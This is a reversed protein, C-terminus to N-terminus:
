NKALAEFDIAEAYRLLTAQDINRGKVNVIFRGAVVINIEGQQDKDNYKIIARQQKITQLSGGSTGAFLPNSLLMIVSQLVPSDSVIEISLTSGTANFYDRSVTVGGGFVATGLAQSRAEKAQWGWFPEPLLSKMRESKKQRILQTAYDLNSVASEFQDAHYQKIAEQISRLVVDQEEPVPPLSKDEERYLPIAQEPDKQDEPVTLVFPEQIPDEEAEKYLKAAEEPSIVIEDEGEVPKPVTLIFAENKKEQNPSSLLPNRDENEEAETYLLAAENPTLLIRRQQLDLPLHSQEAAKWHEESTSRDAFVRPSLGLSILSLAALMALAKKNKM